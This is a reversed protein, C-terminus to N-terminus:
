KEMEKISKSNKIIDKKNNIDKKHIYYKQKLFEKMHKVTTHSFLDKEKINYNLYINNNKLILVLTNYSYLEHKIIINDKNYYRKIIAKNYFSKQSSFKPLLAAEDIFNIKEM